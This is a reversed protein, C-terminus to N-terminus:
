RTAARASRRAAAIGPSRSPSRAPSAKSCTSRAAAGLVKSGRDAPRAYVQKSAEVLLAGAVVRPDFRRGIREWFYATQLWFRRHSPPAYLAGAHREPDFRHRRLLAELQGLSYPRGYGFPTADRRAWLGSRNPVIFVVRGGPALM